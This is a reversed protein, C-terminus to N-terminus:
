LELPVARRPPALGWGSLFTPAGLGMRGGCGSDFDRESARPTRRNPSEGCLFFAAPAWAAQTRRISVRRRRRNAPSPLLVLAAQASSTHSTHPATRRKSPNRRHNTS